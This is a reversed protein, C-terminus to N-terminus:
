ALVDTTVLVARMDKVDVDLVVRMKKVADSKHCRSISEAESRVFQLSIVLQVRFVNNSDLSSQPTPRMLSGEDAEKKVGYYADLRWASEVREIVLLIAGDQIRDLRRKKGTKDTAARDIAIATVSDVLTNFGEERADVFSSTFSPSPVPIPVDMKAIAERIRMSYHDLIIFEVEHPLKKPDFSVLASENFLRAHNIDRADEILQSYRNNNCRKVDERKSGGESLSIMRSRRLRPHEHPPTWASAIAVSPTNLTNSVMPIGEGRSAFAATSDLAAVVANDADLYTEEKKDNNGNFTLRFTTTMLAIVAIIIIATLFVIAAVCHTTM